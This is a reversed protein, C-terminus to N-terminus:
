LKNVVIQLWSSIMKMKNNVRMVEQDLTPYFGNEQYNYVKIQDFKFPERHTAIAYERLHILLHRVANIQQM